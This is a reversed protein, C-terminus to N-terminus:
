GASQIGKEIMRGLAWDCCAEYRDDFTGADEDIYEQPVHHPAHNAGPCFWVYWPKSPHSAANDRIMRIAPRQDPGAIVTPPTTECHPAIGRQTPALESRATSYRPRM